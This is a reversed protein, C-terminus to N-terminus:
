ETGGEDAPAATHLRVLDDLTARDQNFSWRNLSAHQIQAPNLTYGSMYKTIGSVSIFNVEEALSQIDRNAQDVISNAADHAEFHADIRANANNRAQEIVDGPDAKIAAFMAEEAAGLASHAQRVREAAVVAARRATYTEAEGPDPKGDRVAQILAAADTNTALDIESEAIEYEVLAATYHDFAKDYADVAKQTPKPWKLTAPPGAYPASRVPSVADLINM